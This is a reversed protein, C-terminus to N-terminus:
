DEVQEVIEEATAIRRFVEQGQKLGEELAAIRRSMEETDGEKVRQQSAASARTLRLTVYIALSGLLLGLVGHFIAISWLLWETLSM